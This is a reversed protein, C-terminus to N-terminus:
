IWRSLFSSVRGTGPAWKTWHLARRSLWGQLSQVAAGGRFCYAMSNHFISLSLLQSFKHFKLTTLIISFSHAMVNLHSDFEYHQQSVQRNYGSDRWGTWMILKMMKSFAACVNGLLNWQTSQFTQNQKNAWSKKVISPETRPWFLGPHLGLSWLELHTTM